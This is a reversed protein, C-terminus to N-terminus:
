TVLAQMWLTSIGRSSIHFIFRNAAMAQSNSLIMDIRENWRGSLHMLYTALKNVYIKSISFGRYVYGQKRININNKPKTNM